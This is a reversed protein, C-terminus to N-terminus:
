GFNIAVGSVDIEQLLNERGEILFRGIKEAPLHNIRPFFQFRNQLFLRPDIEANKM